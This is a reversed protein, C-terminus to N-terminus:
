LSGTTDYPFIVSKQGPAEGEAWTIQPTDIGDRGNRYASTIQDRVIGARRTFEGGYVKVYACSTIWIMRVVSWIGRARDAVTIRDDDMGPPVTNTKESM